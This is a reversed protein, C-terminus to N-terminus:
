YKEVGLGINAGTDSTATVFSFTLVDGAAVAVTHTTDSCTTAAGGTAFTCTLTTASGNKLVTAVDKNTGGSVASGAVVRLTQLTGATSVIWRATSTTAGSCAADTLFETEASGLSGTCFAQITFHGAAGELGSGRGALSWVGATSGSGSCQYVNGTPTNIVINTFLNAPTCSGGVAPGPPPTGNYWNLNGIYVTAATLHTTARTGNAGRTVTITTGSVARVGMLEYDVWLATTNATIGSNSAVAISTGNTTTVAAGLTTTTFTNTQAHALGMFLLGAIAFLSLLKHRM